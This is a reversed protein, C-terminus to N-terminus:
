GAPDRGGAVDDSHALVRQCAARGDLGLVFRYLVPRAGPRPDPLGQQCGLRVSKAAGNPPWSQPSRPAVPEREVADCGAAGRGPCKRRCGDTAIAGPRDPAPRRGDVHCRLRAPLRSVSTNAQKAPQLALRTHTADGPPPPMMALLMLAWGALIRQPPNLALEAQLAAPWSTFISLGDVTVCFAPGNTTIDNYVSLALGLGAMALLVPWPDHTFQRLVSGPRM